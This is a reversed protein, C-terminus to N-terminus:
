SRSKWQKFSQWFWVIEDKALILSLAFYTLGGSFILIIIELLSTQGSFNDIVKLILLMIASAIFPVFIIRKLNLNFEKKAVIWAVISTASVIFHGLSAGYVGKWISLLPIILWSAATWMIM